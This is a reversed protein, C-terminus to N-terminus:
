CEFRSHKGSTLLIERHLIISKLYHFCEELGAGSQHAARIAERLLEERLDNSIDKRTPMTNVCM